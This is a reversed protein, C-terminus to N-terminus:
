YANKLQGFGRVVELSAAGSGLETSHFLTADEKRVSCFHVQTHVLNVYNLSEAELRARYSHAEERVKQWPM